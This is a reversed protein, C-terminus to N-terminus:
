KILKAFNEGNLNIYDYNKSPFHRYKIHLLRIKILVHVVSVKPGLGVESCHHKRSFSLLHEPGPENM